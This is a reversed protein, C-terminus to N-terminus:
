AGCRADRIGVRAELAEAIQRGIDVAEKLPIAGVVIREALTPGEVVTRTCGTSASQM